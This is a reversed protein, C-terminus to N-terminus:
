TFDGRGVLTMGSVPASYAARGTIEILDSGAVLEPVLCDRAPRQTMARTHKPHGRRHISDAARSHGGHTLSQFAFCPGHRPHDIDIAAMQMLQLIDM